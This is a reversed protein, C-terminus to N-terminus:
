TNPNTAISLCFPVNALFTLFEALNREPYKELDLDGNMLFNVGGPGVEPGVFITSSKSERVVAFGDLLASRTEVATEVLQIETM